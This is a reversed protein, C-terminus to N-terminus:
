EDPIVIEGESIGSQTELARIWHLNQFNRWLPDVISARAGFEFLMWPASPPGRVDWFPNFLHPHPHGDVVFVCPAPVVSLSSASKTLQHFAVGRRPDRTSRVCDPSVARTLLLLAAHQRV